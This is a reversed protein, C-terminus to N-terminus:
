RGESEPATPPAATYRRNRLSGPTSAAVPAAHLLGRFHPIGKRSVPLVQTFGHVSVWYIGAGCARCKYRRGRGRFRPLHSYEPSPGPKM